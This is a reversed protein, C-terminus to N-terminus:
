IYRLTNRVFIFKPIIIDADADKVGMMEEFMGSINVDGVVKKLQKIKVRGAM